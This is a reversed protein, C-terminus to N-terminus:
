RKTSNQPHSPRKPSTLSVSITMKRKLIRPKSRSVKCVELSEQVDKLNKECQIVNFICDAESFSAKQLEELTKDLSHSGLLYGLWAFFLCLIFILACYETGKWILVPKEEQAPAPSSECAKSRVCEACQVRLSTEDLPTSTPAKLKM